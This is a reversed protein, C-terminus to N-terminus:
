GEVMGDIIEIDVSDKYNSSDGQKATITYMGNQSWLQGDVDIDIMFDGNADPSIQSVSVINSNPAQVSVTVDNNTRDTNGSISITTSGRVSNDKITLGNIGGIIPSTGPTGSELTSESVSTARTVGNVIEVQLSFDYLASSGQKVSITYMGDQNWVVGPREVKIVEAGMDALIMSCFPGAVIHTVDLVRIGMLPLTPTEQETTM